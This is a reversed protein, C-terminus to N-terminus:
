SAPKPAPPVPRLSDGVIWSGVILVLNTIQEENLLNSLFPVSERVVVVVLGALAVWFRKSQFLGNVNM